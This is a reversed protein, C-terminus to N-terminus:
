YLQFPPCHYQINRLANERNLSNFANSADVLIAAEVDPSEFMQHMAHVAVECGAEQGACLQLPGAAEQIDDRVTTLIAKGIIRRATEGIGIPRVGPCKDLAVFGCAVFASLSKPDVFSCCIRRTTSAMADCLDTSAYQFSTCLSVNGDQQM